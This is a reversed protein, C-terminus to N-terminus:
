HDRWVCTMEEIPINKMEPMFFYCYLTMHVVFFAFFIFLGFKMTCLMGLFVQAVLFTFFMNVAVNISQGASRIELSFIESPYLWGLPGWSWAIGAVYFCICIVVMIVFWKPLEMVDRTVGFKAGILAGELFLTRIGWKDAFGISVCTALVNIVGTIVASM